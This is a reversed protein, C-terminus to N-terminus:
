LGAAASAAAATAARRRTRAAAPARPPTCPPLRPPPPPPPQRAASNPPRRTLTPSGTHTHVAACVCVCARVRVVPNAAVAEFAAEVEERQMGARLLKTDAVLKFLEKYSMLTIPAVNDTVMSTYAKFVRRMDAAITRTYGILSSLSSQPNAESALVDKLRSHRLSRWTCTRIHPHARTHARMCAGGGKGVCESPM